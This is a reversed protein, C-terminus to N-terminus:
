SSTGRPLMHLLKLYPRQFCAQDRPVIKAGLIYAWSRSQLAWLAQDRVWDRM